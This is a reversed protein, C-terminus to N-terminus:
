KNGMKESHHAPESKDQREEKKKKGFLHPVNNKGAPKGGGWGGGMLHSSIADERKKKKRALNKPRGPVKGKKEKGIGSGCNSIKGWGEKKVGQVVLQWGWGGGGKKSIEGTLFGNKGGRQGNEASRYEPCTAVV